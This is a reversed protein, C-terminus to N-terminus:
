LLKINSKRRTQSTKCCTQVMKWCNTGIRERPQTKATNERHHINQQTKTKTERKQKQSTGPVV